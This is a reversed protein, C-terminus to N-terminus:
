LIVFASIVVTIMKSAVYQYVTVNVAFYNIKIFYQALLFPIEQGYWSNLL